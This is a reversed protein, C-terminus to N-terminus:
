KEPHLLLQRFKDIDCIVYDSAVKELYKEDVLQHLARRYTRESCGFREAERYVQSFDVLPKNQQHREYLDSVINLMLPQLFREMTKAMGRQYSTSLLQSLWVGVEAHRTLLEDMMVRPIVKVTMSEHAVVSFQSPTHTLYEIEGIITDSVFRQGLSFTKGNGANYHMTYEGLAIWYLAKIEEGQRLIVEGAGMLKSKLPAANVADRLIQHGRQAFQQIITM